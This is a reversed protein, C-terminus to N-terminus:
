DFRLRGVALLGAVSLLAGVMFPLATGSADWMWGAWANAALLSVGTLLHFLGFASGRLEPPAIDAIMRALIGQSFALHLGWLCIGGLATFISGAWALLVDGFFLFVMSASLLARSGFKDSLLGAPYAALAFVINMVILVIPTAAAPLGLGQSRLILFAESFRALGLLCALGLLLWYVKGLAKLAAFHPILAEGALKRREPEQVSKHLILLALFAPVAALAFVLRFDDESAAMLAIALLPGLFAGITDLSQRLGFCAGRINEPAIDAILADRPAGRIGKGIRDAFRAAFIWGIAPALAFFPKTLASLGYGLLVLPKRERFRDSLVGSFVKVISATAEATGEILGVALGSAGLVTTLFVPLLGHIMESSVDMLLSVTGLAWISAPIDRLKRALM